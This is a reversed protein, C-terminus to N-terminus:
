PILPMWNAGNDTTRYLQSHGADDIGALAWGTFPVTTSPIFDIQALRDTLDLSAAMGAWTQAGDTSFYLNPGGDWSWAHLADAFAYHGPAIVRNADTPDGIWTVGGDNTTYFTHEVLNTLYVTLPLFGQSGFFVPTQPMYQYAEYGAPLPVAQQAWTQGGDHTAFLYIEGDVPRTGTVWGTNADLFTMGNKIGSLPLSDSSGPQTPDNHFVSVWTVGGDSTQYLEVANSGAGAGRDALVRGTNTDLFQLIGGGFPVPNSTWTLGGDTTHFLTGTYFDAGSLLVWVTNTDLVSLSASYGIPGIEAPTADLWTVGGDVTRLVYGNDNIALGWGNNEDQFDISVLSPSAVEPLPPSVPVETPVLTVAETPSATPTDTAPVPTPTSFYDPLNCAVTILVLVSCVLSIKRRM